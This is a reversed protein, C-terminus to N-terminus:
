NTQGHGDDNGDFAGRKKVQPGTLPSGVPPPPAILQEQAALTPETSEIAFPSLKQRKSRNLYRTSPTKWLLSSGRRNGIRKPGVKRGDKRKGSATPGRGFVSRSSNTTPWRERGLGSDIRLICGEWKRFREAPGATCALLM